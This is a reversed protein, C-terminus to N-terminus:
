ERRIDLISRMKELEMEIVSSQAPKTEMQILQSTEELSPIARSDVQKKQILQAVKPPYPSAAVHALLNEELEEYSYQKLAKHWTDIKEQNVEFQEYYVAILALLTFTERKTM